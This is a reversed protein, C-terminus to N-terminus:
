SQQPVIHSSSSSSSFSFLKQMRVVKTCVQHIVREESGTDGREMARIAENRKNSFFFFFVYLVHAVVLVASCPYTVSKKKVQGTIAVSGVLTTPPTNVVNM